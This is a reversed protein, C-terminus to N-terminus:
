RQLRTRIAQLNPRDIPFGVLGQLLLRVKRYVLTSVQDPPPLLEPPRHSASHTMARHPRRWDRPQYSRSREKHGRCEARTRDAERAVQAAEYAVDGPAGLRAGNYLKEVSLVPQQLAGRCICFPIEREVIQQRIKVGNSDCERIEERRRFVMDGDPRTHPAQQLYVQGVYEARDLQYPRHGDG